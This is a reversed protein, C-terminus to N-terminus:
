KCDKLFRFHNGDKSKLNDYLHTRMVKATKGTKEIAELPNEFIDITQKNKDLLVVKEERYISKRTHAVKRAYEISNKSCQKNRKESQKILGNKSAHQMNETKSCWELNTYHNNTKNGDIHNVQNKLKNNGECFHKDVIRHVYEHGYPIYKVMKYGNNNFRVKEIRPQKKWVRGAKDITEFYLREVTGDEYIKFHKNTGEIYRWKMVFLRRIYITFLEHEEILTGIILRCNTEVGEIM